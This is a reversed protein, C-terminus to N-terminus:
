MYHEQHMTTDATPALPTARPTPIGPLHPPPQPLPPPSQPKVQPSAQPPNPPTAQPSAQTPSPPKVQLVVALHPQSVRPNTPTLPIRPTAQPTPTRLVMLQTQHNVARSSTKTTPSRLARLARGALLRAQIAKRPNSRVKLAQHLVQRLNLPVRLARLFPVKSRSKM